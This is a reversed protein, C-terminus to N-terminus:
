RFSSQGRGLAQTAAFADPPKRAAKPLRVAWYGAHLRVPIARGDVRFVGSTAGAPAVGFAAWSGDPAILAMMPRDTVRSQARTGCTEAHDTGLQAKAHRVVMCAGGDSTPVVDVDFGATAKTFAHITHGPVVTPLHRATRPSLKAIRQFDRSILKASGDDFAGAAIAVAGGGVALVVVAVGLWGRRRANPGQALRREAADLMQTRMRALDAELDPM